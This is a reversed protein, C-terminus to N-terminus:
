KKEQDGRKAHCHETTEHIRVDHFFSLLEDFDYNNENLSKNFTNRIIEQESTSIRIKCNYPVASLPRFILRQPIQLFELVQSLKRFIGRNEVYLMQSLYRSM